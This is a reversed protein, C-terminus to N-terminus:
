PDILNAAYKERIGSYIDSVTILMGTEHTNGFDGHIATGFTKMTDSLGMYIDVLPQLNEGYQDLCGELSKKEGKLTVQSLISQLLILNRHIYKLRFEKKPRVLREHDPFRHLLYSLLLDRAEVNYSPYMTFKGFLYQIEPYLTVLYELGSFLNFFSFMGRRADVRPQYKPQIFSRGLELTTPLYDRVFKQSFNFLKGTPSHIIPGQVLNRMLELRYGGVIDQDIPNWVLLHRFLYDYEDIDVSNGTGGKAYRFTIEQLRGLEHMTYPCDIASILHIEHGLRKTIKAPGKQSLEHIILNKEVPPIIDQM